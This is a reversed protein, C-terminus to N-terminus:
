TRQLYQHEDPRLALECAARLQPFGELQPDAEVVATADQRARQILEADQMVKLVKLGSRMGSQEAGLVNGERRVGTDLEALAFGDTTAAVATLRQMSQEDETAATALLCTGALGGRGVRGRLQHLQAIGFRDADMIVMMSANPVDVGVEVVTTSVVVDIHGAAFASMVADKDEAPLRGHLVAMKVGTLAPHEALEAALATVGWVSRDQGNQSEPNAEPVSLQDNDDEDGIRSCVVFGQRGQAVEEALRHWMRDVWRPQTLPVVHTTVPQRGPPLETLRSIDLDGFVTMAVTRPIPTATMVLTHPTHGAKARLAERQDVGFRHQEDVVVLGLHAFQVSDYLLAHTGVVIGAAGSAVDALATRKAAQKLSGTVLRVTTAHEHGGLLGGASLDGLLGLISRYHQAALVETPALLACQGRADVVQLMARLAVLTKGSGVDGQLLRMMPRDTALEAALTQGVQHQSTTLTFPLRDDLTTLARGSEAAFVPARQTAAAAAKRQVLVTQTVFAEEYALRRRAADRQRWSTPQHIALLAEALGMRVGPVGHCPDPLEKLPQTTLLGRIIREIKESPVKATAPYVPLLPHERRWQAEQEDAQAVQPHKLQRTGRYWQPTGTVLVSAGPVLTRELSDVLWKQRAFFAAPMTHQGDTFEATVIWGSRARMPRSTVTAVNVHMTASEGDVVKSLDTIGGLDVYKRPYYRLMDMVTTVGLATAVTSTKAVVKALQRHWWQDQSSQKTM